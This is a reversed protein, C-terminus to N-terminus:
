VVLSLLVLKKSSEFVMGEEFTRGFKEYFFEAFPSLNSADVPELTPVMAPMTMNDDMMSVPSMAPELTVNRGVTTDRSDPSMADEDDDESSSTSSSRSSKSSGKGKYKKSSAKYYGTGSRDYTVYSYHKKMRRLRQPQDQDNSVEDHLELQLPDDAQHQEEQSSSGVLVEPLCSFGLTYVLAVVAISWRRRIMTM